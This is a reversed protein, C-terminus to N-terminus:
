PAKLESFNFNEILSHFIFSLDSPGEFLFKPIRDKGELTPEKWKKKAEQM